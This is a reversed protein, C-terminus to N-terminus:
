EEGFALIARRGKLVQVFFSTRYWAKGRYNAHENHLDWNDPVAISEWQKDNFSKSYWRNTMGNSSPDKAFKWTKPISISEQGKLADNAESVVSFFFFIGIFMSFQPRYFKMKKLKPSTILEM